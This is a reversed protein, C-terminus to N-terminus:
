NLNLLEDAIPGIASARAEDITLGHVDDDFEGIESLLLRVSSDITMFGHLVEEVFRTSAFGRVGDPRTFTFCPELLNGGKNRRIETIRAGEHEISLFHALDVVHLLRLDREVLAQRLELPLPWSLPPPVLPSPHDLVEASNSVLPEAFDATLRMAEKAFPGGRPDTGSRIAWVVDSGERVVAGGDTLAKRAAREVLAWNYAIEGTTAQVVIPVATGPIHGFGDRLVGVVGEMRAVQRGKRSTKKYQGSGDLACEVLSPQEYDGIVLDGIRLVNTLDCVRVAVGTEAVAHACELVFDFARGQSGLAPPKGPHKALQRITHPHLTKWALADGVLRLLKLHEREASRRDGFAVPEVRKIEAALEEQLEFLALAPAAVSEIADVREVLMARCERLESASRSMSDLSAGAIEYSDHSGFTSDPPDLAGAASNGRM